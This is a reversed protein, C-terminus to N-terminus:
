MRGRIYKKSNFSIKNKTFDKFDGVGAKLMYSWTLKLVDVVRDPDKLLDNM